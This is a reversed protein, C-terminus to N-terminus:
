LEEMQMDVVQKRPTDKEEQYGEMQALVTAYKEDWATNNRTLTNQLEKNETKLALNAHSRVPKCRTLRPYRM